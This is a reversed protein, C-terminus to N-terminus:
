RVTIMTGGQSTLLLNAGKRIIKYKSPFGSFAPKTGIIGGDAHAIVYTSSTYDADTSPVVTFGSFDLYGCSTLCDSATGSVTLRYIVGSEFSV